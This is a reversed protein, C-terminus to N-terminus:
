RKGNRENDANNTSREKWVELGPKEGAMLFDVYDILCEECLMKVAAEIRLPELHVLALCDVRILPVEAECKDCYKRM